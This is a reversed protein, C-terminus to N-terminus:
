CIVLFDKIIQLFIYIIIKKNHSKKGTKIQEEIIKKKTEKIEDESSILLYQLLAYLNNLICVRQKTM